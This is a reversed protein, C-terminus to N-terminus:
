GIIQKIELGLEYTMDERINSVRIVEAVVRLTNSEKNESPIIVNLKSGANLKKETVMLMGAGSINKCKGEYRETEGEITFTVVTDIRMRIFGRKNDDKSQEPM